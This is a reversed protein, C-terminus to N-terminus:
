KKKQEEEKNLQEKKSSDNEIQNKLKENEEKIKNLEKEM